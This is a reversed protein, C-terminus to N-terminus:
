DSKGGRIVQLKMPRPIILLKIDADKVFDKWLDQIRACDDPTTERDITLVCRDGPYLKGFQKFDEIM